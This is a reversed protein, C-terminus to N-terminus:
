ILRRSRRGAGGRLRWTPPSTACGVCASRREDLKVVVLPRRGIRTVTRSMSHLTTRYRHGVELTPQQAGEHRHGLLEVEGAGRLAQVEGLGADTSRNLM